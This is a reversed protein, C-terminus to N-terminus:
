PEPGPRGPAASELAARSAREAYEHAEHTRGADYLYEGIRELVAIYLSKFMEARPAYWPEPYEGLLLEGNYLSEAARYHAFAEQAHGREREADGDAVHATFRRVDIVANELRVSIDGRSSYYRDVNAYGVITALAKRINSSATRLSQTALSSHAGPWFVALLEDRSAAGSPKLLLYKFIQAERRRLWEVRRGGIEAEFRGFMRVALLTAPEADGAAAPADLDFQRAVRYVRYAGGAYTTFLGRAELARVLETHEPANADRLAAGFMRRYTEGAARFEGDMLEQFNRANDRRWLEYADALSRRNKAAERIAWSAVLPWGETQLLLQEVDAPKARVNVRAALRGVDGADFALAPGDVVAALGSAVLRPADLATRARAACIFSIGAPAAAVLDAIEELTEPTARDLDDLAIQRPALTAIAAVLSEFSAPVYDIGFTRALRGRFSQLPEDAKLAVYGGAGGLTQVHSVVATTKGAGLSGVLYRLPLEAHRDFWGAIREREVIAPALRPLPAPPPPIPPSQGGNSFSM